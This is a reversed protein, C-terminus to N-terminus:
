AQERAVKDAQIRAELAQIEQRLKLADEDEEVPEHKVTDPKSIVVNQAASEVSQPKQETKM